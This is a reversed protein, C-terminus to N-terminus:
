LALADEYLRLLAEAFAAPDFPEQARAAAQGLATRRAEDRLLEDLARALAYPDGPPALVAAEGVVEPIAGSLTTVVAKGCAMSEAFVM